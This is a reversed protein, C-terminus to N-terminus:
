PFRAVSGASSPRRLRGGVPRGKRIKPGEAQHSRPERKRGELVTLRGPHPEVLPRPPSREQRVPADGPRGTNADKALRHYVAEEGEFLRDGVREIRWPSPTTM